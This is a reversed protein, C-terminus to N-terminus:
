SSRGGPKSSSDRRQKNINESRKSNWCEKVDTFWDDFHDFMRKWGNHTSNFMLEASSHEIWIMFFHGHNPAIPTFRLMPGLRIELIPAFEIFNELWIYYAENLLNGRAEPAGLISTMWLLIQEFAQFFTVTTKLHLEWKVLDFREEQILRGIQQRYVVRSLPEDGARTDLFYSICMDAQFPHFCVLESDEDIAIHFCTSKFAVLSQPYESALLEDTQWKYRTVTGWTACIANWIGERIGLSDVFYTRVFGLRHFAM